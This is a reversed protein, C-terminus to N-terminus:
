NMSRSSFNKKGSRTRRQSELKLRINVFNRVIRDSIKHCTMFNNPIKNMEKILSDRVNGEYYKEHSIYFNFVNELTRFFNFVNETPYFLSSSSTERLSNFNKFQTLKSYESEFTIPKNSGLSDFCNSCKRFKNKKIKFLIHGALNYLVMLELKSLKTTNYYVFSNCPPLEIAKKESKFHKIIDLFDNFYTRDDADYSSYTSDTIIQAISIVKLTNKFSVASPKKQKIRVTCFLNELPDQTLRGTMLFKFNLQSFCYEQFQIVSTTSIILGTQIPKWCNRKGVIIVKFVEITEELFGIAEAYSEQNNPNLAGNRESRSTMLYFWKNIFDVFWATSLYQPRKVPDEDAMVRLASSVDKHLVHYSTKVKMKEFNTPQLKYAELKPALKLSSDFASQTEFIDEVSSFDLVASELNYKLQIEEPLTFTRNNILSQCVNKFLHPVDAMFHLFRPVSNIDQNPHDVSANLEIRLDEPNKTKNTGVVRKCKIGFEKWMKINLPGMDNVNLHVRLGIDEALKIIDVIMKKLAIGYLSNNISDTLEYAVIAKWGSQIGALMIVLGNKAKRNTINPFTVNGFLCKLSSDYDIGEEIAMEDTMIVCERDQYNMETVKYQLLEFVEFLIGHEFKLNEIKKSLTRQSPLPITKRIEDYGTGGCIFRWKLSKEVTKNSWRIGQLGKNNTRRVLLDFQDDNFVTNLINEKSFKNQHLLQQKKIVRSSQQRVLRLKDRLGKSNKKENELEMQLKKITLDKDDSVIKKVNRSNVEDTSNSFNWEPQCELFKEMSVETNFLLNSQSLHSTQIIIQQGVPFPEIIKSHENDNSVNTITSINSLEPLSQITSITSITSVTPITPSASNKLKRLGPINEFQCLSFHSSCIRSGIGPLWSSKKNVFDIWKKRRIPETPFTYFSLGVTSRNKCGNVSCCNVM